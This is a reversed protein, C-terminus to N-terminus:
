VFNVKTQGDATFMQQKWPAGLLVMEVVNIQNVQSKNIIPIRRRGRTGVYLQNNIDM